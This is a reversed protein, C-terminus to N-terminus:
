LKRIEAIRAEVKKKATEVAKDVMDLSLGPKVGQLISDIMQRQAVNLKELSDIWGGVAKHADIANSYETAIADRLTVRLETIPASEAQYEAVLDNYLTPFDKSSDYDRNYLTEFGGMWHNLFVPGYKHFFFHEFNELKQDVYADVMAIHTSRLSQIIELEKQHTKAIQPPVSACSTFLVMCIAGIIMKAGVLHRHADGDWLRRSTQM